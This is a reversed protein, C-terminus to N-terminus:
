GELDAFEDIAIGQEPSLMDRSLGRKTALREAVRQEFTEFGDGVVTPCYVFVEREQGIRYARDTAQDEKAPNWPRTFHIVHNAAQINVGFGVATTSLVIVGFGPQAQFRDIIAQRSAEADPDVSTSGNVISVDIGFRGAVARQVLRQMERFETFVIAKEGRGDAGGKSIEELKGLLWALKPSHRLHESVPLYEAKPDDAALPNACIVRLRHLLGLIAAGSGAKGDSMADRVARVASGYLARQRPSMALECPVDTKPLLDAVDSKMRRLVWPAIQRRLSEVLVDHGDVRQEIAQRFVKTFRTLSDLLGPQFFDFLCWLDALSNEVPTGTCAIKFDAQMAKAARTVMAGPTKIKQAEDCVLVGWQERAFSLQYDRLTEYTTLVFAAGGAFGPRLAKKLGRERLDAPMEHPALRHAALEQGYLAATRGQSGDLFKAIESRWNELLSVPAVVLCPRPVPTSQRYWAMLCLSQLTKGLGMDDALLIGRVGEERRALRQQMWALGKLQHPLLRVEPRLAAPLVPDQADEDLDVCDQRYDLQEINHLIRLSLTESPKPDKPVTPPAPERRSAEKLGDVWARAEATPIEDELGPVRVKAAGTREAEAVRDTLQRVDGPQLRVTSVEGTLPDVREVDIPIGDPAWEQGDDRRPVRPVLVPKGDFGVVRDSYGALDFLGGDSPATGRAADVSAREIRALSELTLGALAIDSGRWRLASEGRSRALVAAVLLERGDSLDLDPLARSEQEGAPDTLLVGWGGDQPELDLEWEILGAQRRAREFDDPRVVDEAGDGLWPYPNRVFSAAESGGLRRAPMRKISEAVRQVPEPLVVHTVGGDDTPVDYRPRVSGYRDFQDVWRDPAREPRPTVEVVDMGAAEHRQLEIDIRDPVVVPSRALYTDLRAGAAAALAQIRGMALMRDEPQGHGGEAALAEIQRLLDHAAEPLLRDGDDLHLVPGTRSIAQEAPPEGPRFWGDIRVVFSPDSPTGLASLAPREAAEPPLGLLPLSADHQPDRQLAYLVSWPLLIGEVVARARGEELLQALYAAAPDAGGLQVAYLWGQETPKCATQPPAAKAKRRFGLNLGMM